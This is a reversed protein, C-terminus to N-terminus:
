SKRASPERSIADSSAVLVVARGDSILSDHVLLSRTLARSLPVGGPTADTLACKSSDRRRGAAPLAVPDSDSRKVTLSTFAAPGFVNSPRRSKLMPHWEPNFTDSTATPVGLGSQACVSVPLSWPASQAPLVPYPYPSVSRMAYESFSIDPKAADSASPWVIPPESVAAFFAYLASVCGSLGYSSFTM